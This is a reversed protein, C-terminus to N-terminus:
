RFRDSGHLWCLLVKLEGSRVAQFGTVYYAPFIAISGQPRRVSYFGNSMMNYGGDEYQDEPTLFVVMGLKRRSFCGNGLELHLGVHMGTKLSLIQTDCLTDVDFLYNRDNLVHMLKHCYDFIWQNDPQHALVNSEAQMYQAYGPMCRGQEAIFKQTRESDTQAAIIRGCEDPTFIKRYFFSQPINNNIPFQEVGQHASLQIESTHAEDTM